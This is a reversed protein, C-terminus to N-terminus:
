QIVWLFGMYICVNKETWWFVSLLWILVIAQSSCVVQGQALHLHPASPTHGDGLDNEAGLPSSIDAQSERMVLLCLHASSVSYPHVSVPYKPSHLTM